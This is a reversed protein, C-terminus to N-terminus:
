GGGEEGETGAQGDRIDRYAQRRPSIGSLGQIRHTKRSIPIDRQFRRNRHKTPIPKHSGTTNTQLVVNVRSSGHHCM